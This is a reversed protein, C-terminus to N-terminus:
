GSHGRLELMLAPAATSFTLWAMSEMCLATAAAPTQPRMRARLPQHHKLQQFSL